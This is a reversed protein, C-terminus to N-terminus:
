KEKHIEIKAGKGCLMKSSENVIPMLFWFLGNLPYTTDFVEMFPMNMIDMLWFVLIVFHTLWYLYNAFM